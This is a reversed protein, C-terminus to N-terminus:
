DITLRLDELNFKEYFSLNEEKPFLFIEGDFERDDVLKISNPTIKYTFGNTFVVKGNGLVYEGSEDAYYNWQDILNDSFMIRQEPTYLYPNSYGQERLYVTVPRDDYYFYHTPPHHYVVSLGLIAGLYYNGKCFDQFSKSYIAIVYKSDKELGNEVSIYDEINKYLDTIRDTHEITTLKKEPDIQASQGVSCSVILTTIIFALKM